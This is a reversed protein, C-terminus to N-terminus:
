IPLGLDIAVREFFENRLKNLNSRSMFLVNEALGEATYIPREKFYLEEIIKRQHDSAKGLNEKVIREQRELSILRKDQEIRILMNDMSNSVSNGKIDSNIDAAKYPFEIEERRRKKYEEMKPYDKLIDRVANFTSRKM